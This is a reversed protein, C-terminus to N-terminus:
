VAPDRPFQRGLAAAVQSRGWADRHRRCVVANLLEDRTMERAVEPVKLYTALLYLRHSWDEPNQLLKRLRARMAQFGAEDPYHWEFTVPVGEKPTERVSGDASKFDLRLHVVARVRLGDEGPLRLLAASCDSPQDVVRCTEGPKLIIPPFPARGGPTPS